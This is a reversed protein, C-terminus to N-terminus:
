SFLKRFISLHFENLHDSSDLFKKFNLIKFVIKKLVICCKLYEKFNLIKFLSSVINKFPIMKDKLHSMKVHM